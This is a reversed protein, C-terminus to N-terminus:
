EAIKAVEVYFAVGASAGESGTILIFVEAWLTNDSVLMEIKEVRSSYGHTYSSALPWM